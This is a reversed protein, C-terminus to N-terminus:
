NTKVSLNKLLDGMSSATSGSIGTDVEDFILTDDINSNNETENELNQLYTANEISINTFFNM